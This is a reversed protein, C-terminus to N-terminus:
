NCGVSPYDFTLSVKGGAGVVIDSGNATTFASSGWQYSMYLVNNTSGNTYIKGTVGLTNMTYTTSSLGTYDGLQVVSSGAPLKTFDIEYGSPITLTASSAAPTGANIVAKVHLNGNACYSADDITNTGFGASGTFTITQYSSGNGGTTWGTIPVSFKYAITNTNNVVGGTIKILGGTSTQYAFFLSNTDSGDYFIVGARGASVYLDNTASDIARWWYGVVQNAGAMKASPFTYSSFDISATGAATGQVVTGECEFKDGVRRCYKNDSSVTGLGSFTFQSTLAVDTGNMGANGVNLINSTAAFSNTALIVSLALLLIKIM